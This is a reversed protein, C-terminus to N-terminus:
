CLCQRVLNSSIPVGTNVNEMKVNASDLQIKESTQRKKSLRLRGEVDQETVNQQVQLKHIEKM